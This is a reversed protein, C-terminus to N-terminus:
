GNFNSMQDLYINKQVYDRVNDLQREWSHAFWQDFNVVNNFSLGNQWLNASCHEFYQYYKNHYQGQTDDVRTVTSNCYVAADSSNKHKKHPVSPPSPIALQQDESKERPRRQPTVPIWKMFSYEDVVTEPAVNDSSQAVAAEPAVNVEIEKEVEFDYDDEEYYEEESIETDELTTETQYTDTLKLKEAEPLLDQWRPANEDIQSKYVSFLFNESINEIAATPITGPEDMKLSAESDATLFHQSLQTCDEQTVEAGSLVKAVSLLVKNKEYTEQKSNEIQSKLTKPSVEGEEALQHLINSLVNEKMQNDEMIETSPEVLKNEELDFSGSALQSLVLSVDDKIKEEIVNNVLDKENKKNPKKCRERISNRIENIEKYYSNVDAAMEGYLYEATAKLDFDEGLIPMSLNDRGIIGLMNQLLKVESGMFALNICLGASGFRGARGMRHLYTHANCPIDYNIVLDINPVDIGRATLDTTVLIKSKFEKLDSLSSLRKTQSQAGSIYTSDWGNRKLFNHISETRNQYNSFILCQVFPISSLIKLLAENKAKTQQVVNPPSKLLKVFQKLGLLLPSHLEVSVLVPSHMFRGLVTETEQSYTASCMIVQKKHPLFNYIETIDNIFSDETLKDAEDLVLLRIADLHLNHNLILQKLRGPTGVVVHCSIKKEEVPLGGIFTEVHLGAIYAGISKVVSQIQM